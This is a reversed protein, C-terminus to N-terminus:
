FNTTNTSIQRLFAKDVSKDVEPLPLLSLQRYAVTFGRFLYAREISTSIATVIVTLSVRRGRSIRRRPGTSLSQYSRSGKLSVCCRNRAQKQEFLVSIPWLSSISLETSRLTM